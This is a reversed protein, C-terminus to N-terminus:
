RKKAYDAMSSQHIVACFFAGLGGQMVRQKSLYTGM